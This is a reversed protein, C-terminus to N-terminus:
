LAAAYNTASDRSPMGARFLFTVEISFLESRVAMRTESASYPAKATM